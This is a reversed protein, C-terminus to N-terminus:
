GTFSDVNPMSETTTFGLMCLVLAKNKAESTINM